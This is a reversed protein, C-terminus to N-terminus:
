DPFLHVYTLIRGGKNGLFRCKCVGIEGDEDGEELVEDMMEKEQSREDEELKDRGHDVITDEIGCGGDTVNIKGAAEGRREM